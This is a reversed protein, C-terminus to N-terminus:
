KYGEIKFIQDTIVYCPVNSVDVEIPGDVIRPTIGSPVVASVWGDGIQLKTMEADFLHTPPEFKDGKRRMWMSTVNKSGSTYVTVRTGPGGHTPTIKTPVPCPKGAGRTSKAAAAGGFVVAAVVGALALTIVGALYKRKM